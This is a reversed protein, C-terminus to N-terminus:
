YAERKRREEKALMEATIREVERRPAAEDYAVREMISAKAEAASMAGCRVLHRYDDRYKAPIHALRADSIKRGVTARSALYAARAKPTKSAAHIRRGQEKLWEPGRREWIEHLVKISREAHAARFEPEQHKARLAAVRREKIAPDNNARAISCRRCHSTPKAAVCVDPNLCFPRMSSNIRAPNPQECAGEQLIPASIEGSGEDLDSFLGTKAPIEEDIKQNFGISIESTQLFM